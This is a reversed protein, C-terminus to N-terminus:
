HQGILHNHINDLWGYSAISSQYTPDDPGTPEACNGDPPTGGVSTGDAAYAFPYCFNSTATIANNSGNIPVTYLGYTKDPGASYILPYVAFPFGVLQNGFATPYVHRPDFPDPDIGFTDNGGATYGINTTLTFTTVGGTPDSATPSSMFTSSAIVGTKIPPAPNPNAGTPPVYGNPSYTTITRGAYFNNTTSLYSPPSSSVGTTITTMGSPNTSASAVVGGAGNLESLTFGIPWRLFRIPMGWADHFEPFGDGDIDGVDSDNFLDRGGLEDTFALTIIMYLCEAGQFSNIQNQQQGTPSPGFNLNAISYYYNQYALYLAPPPVAPPTPM